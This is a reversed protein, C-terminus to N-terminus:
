SDTYFCRASLQQQPNNVGAAGSSASTMFAIYLANDLIDAFTGAGAGLIFRSRKNKLKITKNISVQDGITTVTGDWDLPKLEVTRDYLLQFSDKYQENIFSYTPAGSAALDFFQAPIPLLTNANKYWFVVIRVRNDPINATRQQLSIRFKLEKNITQTGVRQGAQATGLVSTNLCTVTWAPTTEVPITTYTNYTDTYKVEEAQELRTIRRALNKDVATKPSVKRRKKPPRGSNSNSSTDMAMSMESRLRKLGTLRTTM